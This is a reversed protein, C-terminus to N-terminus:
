TPSTRAGSSSRRDDDARRRERLARRPARAVRAIAIRQQREAGRLAAPGGRARRADGLEYQAGNWAEVSAEFRTDLANVQALVAQAQAQKDRLKQKTSAASLDGALVAGAVLTLVLAVLILRSIRM